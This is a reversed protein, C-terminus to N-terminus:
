INKIKNFNNFYEINQKNKFEKILESFLSPIIITNLIEDLKIFNKNIEINIIEKEFINKIITNKFVKEIFVKVEINKTLYIEPVKIVNTINNFTYNSLKLNEVLSIEFIYFLIEILFLYLYSESSTILNEYKNKVNFIIVVIKKEDINNILEDLNQIFFVKSWLISDYTGNQLIPVSCHVTDSWHTLPNESAQTM